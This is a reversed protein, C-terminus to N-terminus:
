KGGGGVHVFLLGFLDLAGVEDMQGEGIASARSRSGLRTGSEDPPPLRDPRGGSLAISHSGVPDCARAIISARVKTETAPRPGPRRCSANRSM